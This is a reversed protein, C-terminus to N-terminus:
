AVSNIFCRFTGEKLRGPQSVIQRQAGLGLTVIICTNHIWGDMWRNMWRYMM